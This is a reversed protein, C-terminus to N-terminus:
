PKTLSLHLKRSFSSCHANNELFLENSKHSGCIAKRFMLQIRTKGTNTTLQEQVFNM